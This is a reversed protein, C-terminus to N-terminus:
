SGMARWVSRYVATSLDDTIEVGSGALMTLDESRQPDLYAVVPKGCRVAYGIEFITGADFGDVLALVAGSRDIGDLDRRAVEPGGRGVDHLPSFPVAGIDVLARRVLDVLWEQGLGFFPSALYVTPAESFEGLAPAPEDGLAPEGVSSVVQSTYASAVRAAEVADADKIGFVYAFAASFVDGSGIPNVRQTPRPGVLVEGKNTIVRVGRAGSKVVIAQAKTSALLFGAAQTTDASGGLRRIERENAVVALRKHHTEGSPLARSEGQPDLILAACSLDVQQDRELMGFRLVVDDTATIPGLLRADMGDIAPPSLPTFYNFTVPSDRPVAHAKIGFVGTVAAFDVMESESVSTHLRLDPM